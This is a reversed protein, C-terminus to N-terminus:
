APDAGAASARARAAAHWGHMAKAVAVADADTGMLSVSYGPLGAARNLRALARPFRRMRANAPGALDFMVQVGKAYYIDVRSVAEWPITRPCLRRDFYGAPGIALVTGAVGLQGLCWVSLRLGVAALFAAFFLAVALMWRPMGQGEIVMVVGLGLGLAAEGAWFLGLGLLVRPRNTWSQAPPLGDSM